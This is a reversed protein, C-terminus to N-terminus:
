GNDSEEQLLEMIQLGDAVAQKLWESFKRATWIKSRLQRGLQEDMYEESTSILAEIAEIEERKANELLYIAIDSEMFEEVQKGLVAARVDPDDPNLAGM